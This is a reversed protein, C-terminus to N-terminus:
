KKVRKKIRRSVYSSAPKQKGADLDEILKAKLEEDSNFMPMNRRENELAKVARFLHDIPRESSAKVETTKSMDRTYTRECIEGGRYVERVTVVDAQHVRQSVNTVMPNSLSSPALPASPTPAPRSVRACASKESRASAAKESRASAAKESRASAAKESRASAAKESRAVELALARDNIEQSIREKEEKELKRALLVSDHERPNKGHSVKGEEEGGDPSRPNLVAQLKDVSTESIELAEKLDRNEGTLRRLKDAQEGVLARLTKIEGDKKSCGLCSASRQSTKSRPAVAPPARPAVKSKICKLCLNKGRQTSPSLCFKGCKNECKTLSKHFGLTREANLHVFSKVRVPNNAIWACFGLSTWPGLREQEMLFSATDDTLEFLAVHGALKLLLSRGDVIEVLTDQIARNLADLSEFGLINGLPVIHRLSVGEPLGTAGEDASATMRDQGPSFHDGAAAAM